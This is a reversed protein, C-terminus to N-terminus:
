KKTVPYFEKEIIIHGIEAKVMQNGHRSTADSVHRPKSISRAYVIASL